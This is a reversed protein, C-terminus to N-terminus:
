GRAGEIIGGRSAAGGSGASDTTPEPACKNGSDERLIMCVYVLPLPNRLIYIVDAFKGVVLDELTNVIGPHLNPTPTLRGWFTITNCISTTTPKRHTPLIPITDVYLQATLPIITTLTSSPPTM